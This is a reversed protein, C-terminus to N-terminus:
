ALENRVVQIYGFTIGLTTMLIIATILIWGPNAYPSAALPMQLPSMQLIRDSNGVFTLIVNTFLMDWVSLLAFPTLLVITRFQVKTGFLFSLSAVSGGLFFLVVCWIVAHLWPCTYYLSSLFWGNFVSAISSSVDMVEYPCVLANLLIDLLSPFSVIVGGSLFVALFKALLYVKKNSRTVLQNYISSKREVYYNSGYPMAALIPWILLYVRAAYNVGNYPLSLLFLSFGEHSGSVIGAKYYDLSRQTFDSVITHNEFLDLLVILVGLSLAIKFHTSNFAKWIEIKISNKM